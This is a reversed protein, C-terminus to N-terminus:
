MGLEALQEAIQSGNSDLGELVSRWRENSWIEFYVDMGALVVQEALSAYERLNQPILIRGQRDVEVDVAGSFLLRRLNRAEENGMSLSSVRQRLREWAPRPFAQLCRDFGRTLILGEALELEERFRAPVAVRGKDDMSHEFEGLFV